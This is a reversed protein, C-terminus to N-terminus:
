WGLSIMVLPALDDFTFPRGPNHGALESTAESAIDPALNVLGVLWDRIPEFGFDILSGSLTETFVINRRPPEGGPIQAVYKGVNIGQNKANVWADAWHVDLVDLAIGSFIHFAWPEGTDVRLLSVGGDKVIGIGHEDGIIPTSVRAGPWQSDVFSALSAILDSPEITLSM